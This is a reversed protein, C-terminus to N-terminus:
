ICYYYQKCSVLRLILVLAVGADAAAQEEGDAAQEMGSVAASTPCSMLAATAATTRRGPRPSLTLRRQQTGTPSSHSSCRLPSAFPARIQGNCFMEDVCSM